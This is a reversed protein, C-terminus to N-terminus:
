TVKVQRMINKRLHKSQTIICKTLAEDSSSGLDNVNEQLLQNQGDVLETFRVIISEGLAM